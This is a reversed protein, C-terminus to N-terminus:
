KVGRLNCGCPRIGEGAQATTTDTNHYLQLTKAKQFEPLPSVNKINLTSWIYSIIGEQMKSTTDVQNTGNYYGGLPFLLYISHNTKKMLKLCNTGNVTTFEYDVANILEQVNEATPMKWPSGMNVRVGDYASSGPTIDEQTGINYGNTKKYSNIGFATSATVNGWSFYSGYNTESTAGVNMIAWKLGSSLGFDVYDVYTMTVSRSVSNATFSQTAPARYSTKNNVSVSYSTGFAVKRSVVGNSPVTYNTGAITVTQGQTSVGANCTNVTVTVVETKYQVSVSRSRGTRSNYTVNSPTQYNTVGGFEVTYNVPVPVEFSIESGQWTTQLLYGGETNDKIKVTAGILASSDTNATLNITVVEGGGGGQIEINGPGYLNTGNITKLNYVKQVAEDIQSGNYNSNYQAM